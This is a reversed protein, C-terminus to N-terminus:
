EKLETNNNEKELDEIVLAEKRKRVYIIIAAIIGVLIAILAIAIVGFAWNPLNATTNKDTQSTQEERAANLVSKYISYYGYSGCSSSEDPYPCAECFSEEAPTIYQSPTLLTIASCYCTPNSGGTMAFYRRGLPVLESTFAWCACACDDITTPGSPHTDWFFPGIEPNPNLTIEKCPNEEVQPNLLGFGCDQDGKLAIWYLAFLFLVKM